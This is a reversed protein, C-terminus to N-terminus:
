DHGNGDRRPDWHPHLHVGTVKFTTTGLRKEVAARVVEPADVVTTDGPLAVVYDRREENILIFVRLKVDRM